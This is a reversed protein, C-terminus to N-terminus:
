RTMCRAGSGAQRSGLTGLSGSRMNSRPRRAVQPGTRCGTCGSLPLCGAQTWPRCRLAEWNSYPFCALTLRLRPHPILVISYPLQAVCTVATPHAPHDADDCTALQAGGCVWFTQLGCDASATVAVSLSENLHGHLVRGPLKGPFSLSQQACAAAPTRLELPPPCICIVSKCYLPGASAPCQRCTEVHEGRVSLGRSRLARM